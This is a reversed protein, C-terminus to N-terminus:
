SREKAYFRGFVILKAGMIGAAFVWLVSAVIALPTLVVLDFWDNSKFVQGRSLIQLYSELSQLLLALVSMSLCISFLGVYILGIRVGIKALLSRQKPQGYGYRGFIMWKVMCVPLVYAAAVFLFPSLLVLVGGSLAFIGWFEDIGEESDAHQSASGRRSSVGDGHCTQCIRSGRCAKCRQSHGALAEVGAEFVNLEGGTGNCESCKGDGRDHSFAASGLCDPCKAM